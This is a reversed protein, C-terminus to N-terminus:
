NLNGRNSNNYRGRTMNGRFQRPNNSAQRYVNGGRNGRGANNSYRDYNQSTRFETNFNRANELRDYSHAWNANQMPYKYFGENRHNSTAIPLTHQQTFNQTKFNAIHFCDDTAHNNKGCIKCQKSRKNEAINLRKELHEIKDLLKASQDNSQNISLKNVAFAIHEQEENLLADIEKAKQVAQKFNTIQGRILERRIDPRIVELLKSLKIKDVIPSQEDETDLFTHAANEIELALDAITKEPTHTIAQFQIQKQTMSQTTEFNERLANEIDNMCSSNQLNKCKILLNQAKGRFKTKIIIALQTDSWQALTAVNRAQTLFYTISETTEGFYEPILNIMSLNSIQTNIQEECRIFSNLERNVGRRTGRAM